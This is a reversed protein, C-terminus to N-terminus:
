YLYFSVFCFRNVMNSDWIGGVGVTCMINVVWVKEDAESAGYKRLGITGRILGDRLSLMAPPAVVVQAFPGFIQASIGWATSLDVM